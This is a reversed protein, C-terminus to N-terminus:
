GFPRQWEHPKLVRYLTEHVGVRGRCLHLSFVYTFCYFDPDLSLVLTLCVCACVTSSSHMRSV